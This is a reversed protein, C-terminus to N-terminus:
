GKVHNVQRESSKELMPFGRPSVSSSCRGACLGTPQLSANQHESWPPLLEVGSSCGRPSAVYNIAAVM